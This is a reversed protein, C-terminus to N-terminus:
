NFFSAEIIPRPINLHLIFELSSITTKTSLYIVNSLDNRRIGKCSAWVWLYEYVHLFCFPICIENSGRGSSFFIIIKSGILLLSM